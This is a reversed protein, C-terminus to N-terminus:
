KRFVKQCIIHDKDLEYDQPCQDIIKSASDPNGNCSQNLFVWCYTSTEDTNISRELDHGKNLLCEEYNKPYQLSDNFFTIDCGGSSTGSDSDIPNCGGLQLCQQAIKTSADEFFVSCSANNHTNNPHELCEAYSLPLTNAKKSRYILFISVSILM